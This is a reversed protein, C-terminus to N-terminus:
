SGAPSLDRGRRNMKLSSAPVPINDLYPAHNWAFLIESPICPRFRNRSFGNMILRVPRGFLDELFAKCDRYNEFSAEGNRFAVLVDVDSDPRGEGRTFSGSVGIMTVGFRRKLDTEHQRLLTLLDTM